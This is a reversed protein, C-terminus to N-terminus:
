DSGFGAILIDIRAESRPQFRVLSASRIELMSAVWQFITSAQVRKQRAVLLKAAKHNCRRASLVIEHLSAVGLSIMKREALRYNASLLAARRFLVASASNRSWKQVGMKAKAFMSSRLHRAIVLDRIM